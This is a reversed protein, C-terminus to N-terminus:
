GKLTDRVGHKRAECEGREGRKDGDMYRGKKARTLGRRENTDSM